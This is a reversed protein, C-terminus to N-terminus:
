MIWMFGLPNYHSFFIYNNGKGPTLADVNVEVTSVNPKAGNEEQFDISAVNSVSPSISSQATSGVKSETKVSSRSKKLEVVITGYLM